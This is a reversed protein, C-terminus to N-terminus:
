SAHEVGLCDIGKRVADLGLDIATARKGCLECEAEIALDDGTAREPGSAGLRPEDDERGGLGHDGHREQRVEGVAGQLECCGHGAIERLETLVALAAHGHELQQGHL